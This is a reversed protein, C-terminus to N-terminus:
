KKAKNGADKKFGKVYEFLFILFIAGMFATAAGIMIYSLLAKKSVTITSEQIQILELPSINSEQMIKADALVNIPDDYPSYDNIQNSGSIQQLEQTILGIKRESDEIKNNYVDAAVNKIVEDLANFYALSLAESLEKDNTSAKVDIINQNQTIELTDKAWTEIGTSDANANIKAKYVKQLELQKSINEFIKDLYIVESTERDMIDLTKANIKLQREVMYVPPRMKLYAGVAGAGAITVIVLVIIYKRLTNFFIHLNDKKNPNVNEM